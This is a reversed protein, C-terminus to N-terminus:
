KLSLIEKANEPIMSKDKIKEFVKKAQKKMENDNNAESVKLLSLSYYINYNIEKKFSSRSKEFYGLAENYQKNVALLVAKLFYADIKVTGETIQYKQIATNINELGKDTDNIMISTLAFGYYGEPNEPFYQITELYKKRAIKIGAENEFRMAEAALNLKFLASKNQSLTDALYYFVLANKDNMLRMTYGTFFAADCFTTDAKYARFFIDATKELYKKDLSQNLHLVKIGGNFLRMAEANESECILNKGKFYDQAFATGLTFILTFLFINKM